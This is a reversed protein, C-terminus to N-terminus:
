HLAFRRSSHINFSVYCTNGVNFTGGWFIAFVSCNVHPIKEEKAGCLRVAPVSEGDGASPSLPAKGRLKMGNNNM